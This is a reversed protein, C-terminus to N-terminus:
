YARGFVMHTFIFSRCPMQFSTLSNLARLHESALEAQLQLSRAVVLGAPHQSVAIELALDRDRASPPEEILHRFGWFGYPCVINVDHEDQYPCEAPLSANDSNWQALIRCPRHAAALELPIDYVLAWPFVYSSGGARCVQVTAPRRMLSRLSRMHGPQDSLLMTWLTWGISALLRVDDIYQESTKRNDKNYLNERQIKSGLQGGFERFHVQRLGARALRTAQDMQGETIHFNVPEGRAGNIVLWHSGDSERRDLVNLTRQPLRDLDLLDSTLSYDMVAIQGSVGLTTQISAAQLLNRQFYLSILLRAPRSYKDSRIPVVLFQQRDAPSCDHNGGPQCTCVWSSGVVPLFVFGPSEGVLFGDGMVSVELWYGTSVAPLREIPFESHKLDRLLSDKRLSGIDIQLLYDHNPELAHDRRLLSASEADIFSLNLFRRLPSRSRSSPGAYARSPLHESLSLSEAGARDPPSGGGFIPARVESVYDAVQAILYTGAIRTDLDHSVLHPALHAVLRSLGGRSVTWAIQYLVSRPWTGVGDDSWSIAQLPFRVWNEQRSLRLLIKAARLYVAFLGDLDPRFFEQISEVWQVITNTDIWQAVANSDSYHGPQIAKRFLFTIAAPVLDDPIRLESRWRFIDERESWLIPFNQLHEPINLETFLTEARAVEEISYQTFGNSFHVIAGRSTETWGAESRRLAQDQTYTSWNKLNEDSSDTLRAVAEHLRPLPLSPSAYIVALKEVLSDSQELVWDAYASIRAWDSTLSSLRTLAEFASIRVEPSPDYLTGLILSYENPDVSDRPVPAAQM